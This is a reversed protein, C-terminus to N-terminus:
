QKYFGHFLFTEFTCNFFDKSLSNFKCINKEVYSETLLEFNQIFIIHGQLVHIWINITSTLILIFHYFMWIKWVNAWICTLEIINELQLKLVMYDNYSHRFFKAPTKKCHMDVLVAWWFNYFCKLVNFDMKPHVQCTRILCFRM